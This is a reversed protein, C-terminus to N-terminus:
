RFYLINFLLSSMSIKVNHNRTYDFVISVHITQINQDIICNGFFNLFIILYLEFTKKQM